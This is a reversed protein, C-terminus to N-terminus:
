QRVILPLSFTRRDGVLAFETLVNTTVIVRNNMSDLMCTDCPLLDIWVQGDWAMLNLTREDSILRSALLADTYSLVLTAPIELQTLPLGTSMQADIRFSRVVGRKPSTPHSPVLQGTYTVLTSSTVAGAPFSLSLGGDHTTLSGGDPTITAVVPLLETHLRLIRLGNAGAAVYALDDVVDAFIRSPMTYTNYATLTPLTGLNVITFRGASLSPSLAPSQYALYVLNGAVKLSLIPGGASYTGLLRPATPDNVDVIKLEGWLITKYSANTIIYARGNVIQHLSTSAYIQAEPLALSGLLTPVTPNNLDLIELQGGSGASRWVLYAQSQEIQLSTISGTVTYAGGLTPHTPDQVDIILLTSDQVIYAFNGRVQVSSISGASAYTGLLRLNDPDSLDVIQFGAKGAAIYAVGGVIQTSIIEGMVPYRSRLVPNVHNTVDIISLEGVRSDIDPESLSTIYAMGNVVQVDRIDTRWGPIGFSGRLIPNTPDRLDIIQIGDSVYALDDIVKVFRPAQAVVYTGLVHPPNPADRVDIIQLGGPDVALFALGGLVDMDRVNGAISYGALPILVDPDSLDVISFETVPNSSNADFASIYAKDALVQVAHIEASASFFGRLAPHEPDHVDFLLLQNPVFAGFTVYAITDVVQVWFAQGPLRYSGRLTPSTPRSVDIIKLGQVGVAYVLNGVVQLMSLTESTLYSGLLTPDHPDIVNIIQLGSYSIVLAHTGVVQVQNLASDGTPTYHGLPLLHAPNSVDLIDLGGAGVIYAFSGVVQVAVAGDAVYRLIPNNRDSVDVIQLSHSYSCYADALFVYVLQGVAQVDFACSPLPAQGLRRPQAPARVDLITLANGETLYAFSGDTAVSRVSGGTSALFEFVPDSSDEAGISAVNQAPMLLAITFTLLIAITQLNSRHLYM